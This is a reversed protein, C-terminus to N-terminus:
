GNNIVSYKQKRSHVFARKKKERHSTWPLRNAAEHHLQHSCGIMIYCRAVTQLVADGDHNTVSRESGVHNWLNDEDEGLRRTAEAGRYFGVKVVSKMRTEGRM